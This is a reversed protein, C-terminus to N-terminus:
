AFYLGVEGCFVATDHRVEARIRYRDQQPDRALELLGYNWAHVTFVGDVTATSAQAAEPGTRWQRYAPGGTEGILLVPQNNALKTEIERPQRDPIRYVATGLGILPVLLGLVAAMSLFTRRRAGPRPPAPRGLPEVETKEGRLWRGLDEALAE